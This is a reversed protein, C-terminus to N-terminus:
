GKLHPFRAYMRAFEAEEAEAKKGRRVVITQGDPPEPHARRFSDLAAGAFCTDTEVWWEGMLAPDFSEDMFQGCGCRCRLASLEAHALTLMRDTEGWPEYGLGLYQTPPIGYKEAVEM